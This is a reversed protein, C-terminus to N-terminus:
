TTNVFLRVDRFTSVLHKVDPIHKRVYCIARHTRTLLHRCVAEQFSAAIDECGPLPASGSWNEEMAIRTILTHASTKLGSFSFNCCRRMSMIHPFPFHTPDGRQAICEVAAGGVHGGVDPHQNLALWRALKDFAEGPSDDRSQGLRSFQGPAHAVALICHGGSVLLVLYPFPIEQELRPTLAHAEMHHVPVVPKNNIEVLSKVFELGAQLCLALGPGVTVAIVDVDEMQLGSEELALDMVRQLNDRHLDAAVVPVVGGTRFYFNVCVVLIL